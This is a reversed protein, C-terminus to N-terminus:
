RNGHKLRLRELEAQEEPTLINAQDEKTRLFDAITNGPTGLFIAAENLYDMLKIQADRKETMWQRLAPGELKQPLAASLAFQLESESLAGFTTNGIVDLGLRAQLNDLKISAEKVSPLKSSIVGTEAGEDLLRIGENLNDINKRLPGLQKFAAVAQKMGEVAGRREGARLGQLEAGREEAQRILEASAEEPQKTEVSGDAYVVQVLGGPLQKSSQVRKTVAEQAQLGQSLLKEADGARTATRTLNLNLEDQNTANLADIYVQPNGGRGMEEQALIALEKRQTSYDEIGRIRLMQAGATKFESELREAEAVQALKEEERRQGIATTLAQTLPEVSPVLDFGRADVLAM